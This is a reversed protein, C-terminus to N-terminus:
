YFLGRIVAGETRAGEARVVARSVHSYGQGVDFPQGFKKTHPKSGGESKAEVILRESGRIAVVDDGHQHSLAYSEIALGKSQLHAM